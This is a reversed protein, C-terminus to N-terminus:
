RRQKACLFLYYFICLLLPTVFCAFVILPYYSFGNQQLLACRINYTIIVSLAMKSIGIMVQSFRSTKERVSQSINSFFYWKEPQFQMFSMLFILCAEMLIFICTIAKSGYFAPEGSFDLCTFIQEPASRYFRCLFVVGTVLAANAMGFTIWNYYKIAKEM